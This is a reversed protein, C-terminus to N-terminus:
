SPTPDQDAWTWLALAVIETVVLAITLMIKANLTPVALALLGFVLTAATLVLAALRALGLLHERDLKM